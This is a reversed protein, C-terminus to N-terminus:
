QELESSATALPESTATLARDDLPELGEREDDGLESDPKQPTPDGMELPPMGGPTPDGMELPSVCQGIDVTLVM